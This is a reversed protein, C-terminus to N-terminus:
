EDKRNDDDILLKKLRQYMFSITLLLVGLLIFAAIKGGPPIDTIDYMFLKVLTIAFMIISCWRLPKFKRKFGLWMMGFSIIGWTISLVAKDYLNIFYHLSNDAINNFYIWPYALSCSIVILFLVAIVFTLTNLRKDIIKEKRMLQVSRYMLGLLLIVGTWHALLPLTFKKEAAKYIFLYNQEDIGTCYFIFCLIALAPLLWPASRKIQKLAVALLVAFAATYLFTFPAYVPEDAIYKTSFQHYTEFLGGLYLVIIGAALVVNRVWRNEIGPVFYSDAERLMMRYYLFFAVAVCFSTIYPKNIIINMAQAGTFYLVSWDMLLSILLVFMILLSALKMLTVKLRQYLWFLLVMEAAWFLTIYNGHLQVPATLSVYTLTLGILLYIFNKDAKFRKFFFWALIFSFAALCITFTGKYIGADWRSLIFMGASYYLANILLLLSLDFRGFPEKTRLKNIVAMAVFQLYFVTGFGLAARYPIVPYNILQDALWSGFIITAFLLAIYHVIRWKKFYSLALLGTNLIILYTFLAVYNNQGNSVLFPTIFGGVSALIAIEIRDYLLSLVVAFLTIVVMIVFAVTQSFLHYQHFAFAITFYFVTLGGGVLVSSFSRYGKRLRHAIAVLAGGCLLGICVRGVENIWDQDIAYKVFFAIGLVLVAIGIKNALNEGIFKEIDPNENMWKRFWSEKPQYAPQTHELREIADKEISSKWTTFTPIPENEKKVVQPPPPTIVPEKIEEAPAIPKEELIKEAVVQPSEKPAPTVTAKKETNKLLDEIRDIKRLLTEITRQQNGLRAIIVFPLVVIIVIAILLLLILGEM